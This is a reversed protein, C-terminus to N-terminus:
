GIFYLIGPDTDIFRYRLFYLTTIHLTYYFVSAFQCNKSQLIAISVSTSFSPVSAVSAPQLRATVMVRPLWRSSAHWFFIFFCLSETLPFRRSSPSEAAARLRLSESIVCCFCFFAFLSSSGLYSQPKLGVREGTAQTGPALGVVSATEETASVPGLVSPVGKAGLRCRPGKTSGM